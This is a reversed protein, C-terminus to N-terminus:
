LMDFPPVMENVRWVEIINKTIKRKIQMPSQKERVEQEAIKIPDSESGINIFPMAGNEIQKAREAVVRTYEYKTMIESTIRRDDPTIIDIHHLNNNTHVNGEGTSIDKGLMEINYKKTFAEYSDQNFFMEEAEDIETYSPPLEEQNLEEFSVKKQSTASKSTKTKDPM